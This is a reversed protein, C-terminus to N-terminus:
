KARKSEETLISIAIQQSLESAKEIESTKPFPIANLLAVMKAGAYAQLTIKNELTMKELCGKMKERPEKMDEQHNKPDDVVIMALLSIYETEIDADPMRESAVPTVEELKKGQAAMERHASIRLELLTKMTTFKVKTGEVAPGSFRTAFNEFAAKATKVATLLAERDKPAMMALNKPTVLENLAIVDVSIDSLKSAKQGLTAGIPASAAKEIKDLRTKIDMALEQGSLSTVTRGGALAGKSPVGQGGQSIEAPEWQSPIAGM